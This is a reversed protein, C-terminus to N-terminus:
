FAVFERLLGALVMVALLFLLVPVLLAGPGRRVSGSHRIRSTRCSSALAVALKEDQRRRGAHSEGRRGM